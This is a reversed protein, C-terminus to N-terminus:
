HRCKPQDQLATLYPTISIVAIVLVVVAAAAAAGGGGGVVVAVVVVVIQKYRLCYERMPQTHLGDSDLGYRKRFVIRERDREGTKRRQRDTQRDRESARDREREGTTSDGIRDAEIEM